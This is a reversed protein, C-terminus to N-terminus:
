PAQLKRREHGRPAIPITLVTFAGLMGAGLWVHRNCIILASGVFQVFLSLGLVLWYPRIGLGVVYRSIGSLDSIHNAFEVWFLFTLLLRAIFATLSADLIAAIYKPTM